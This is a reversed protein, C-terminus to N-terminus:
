KNLKGAFVERTERCIGGFIWVQDLVRGKNYKCRVFCSEDIEVTFGVGGIKKDTTLQQMKWQCVERLYMNWDVCTGGCISIEHKGFKVSSLEFAWAYIFHAANEFSLRSGEFWTGVRMEIETRCSRGHCRWRKKNLDLKMSHGQPCFRENHLIGKEQFFSIASTEDHVKKILERLNWMRSPFFSPHSHGIFLEVLSVYGM